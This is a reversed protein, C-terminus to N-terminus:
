SEVLVASTSVIDIRSLHTMSASLPHAVVFPQPSIPADCDDSLEMVVGIRQRGTTQGGILPYKQQYDVELEWVDGVEDFGQERLSDVDVPFERRILPFTGKAKGAGGLPKGLPRPRVVISVKRSSWKTPVAANVPSNWAAVLTLKPRTASRLWAGPVVFKVRAIAGAAVLETQWVFVASSESPFALARAEGWGRGLTRDSLKGIAGRHQPRRAMAYLWAKITGAFPTAGDLCVRTLLEMAWAAERSLLPAAMSTGSVAVWNGSSDFAWQRDQALGNRLDGSPAGFTPGLSDNEGPGVRSYTAPTDSVHSRGVRFAGPLYAGCVLGNHTQAFAGIAWRSDNIHTPYPASTPSSKTNGSSVVCVLDQDFALNDLDQVMSMWSKKTPEDMERTSDSDFSLNFIRVGQQTAVVAAIGNVATPCDVRPPNSALPVMVDVVQCTAQSPDLVDTAGSRGYAVCSAVQTGHDGVFQIQGTLKPSRFGRRAVGLLGNVTLNAGVDVVGVVPLAPLLSTSQWSSSSSTPDTKTFHSADFDEASQVNTVLPPHILQVSGFNEAIFRISKPSLLCSVSFRGSYEREIPGFSQSRENPSGRNGVYDTLSRLLMDAEPRDLVPQFRVVATVSNSHSIEEMWRGSVRREWPEAQFREFYAWYSQEKLSAQPLRRITAAIQEQHSSLFHVSASGDDWNELLDLGIRRFLNSQAGSYDPRESVVGGVSTAAKSNRLVEPPPVVGVFTRIKTIPDYASVATRMATTLSSMLTSSRSSWDMSAISKSKGFISRDLPSLEHSENLFFNRPLSEKTM